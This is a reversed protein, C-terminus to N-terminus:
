LMVKHKAEIRIGGASVEFEFAETIRGIGMLATLTKKFKAEIARNLFEATEKPYEVNHPHDIFYVEGTTLLKVIAEAVLKTTRGTRRM